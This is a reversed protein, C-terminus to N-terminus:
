KVGKKLICCYSVGMLEHYAEPCDRFTYMASGINSLCYAGFTVLGWWPLQLKNLICFADKTQKITISVVPIIKTQVTEPLPIIGLYLIVYTAIIIAGFTYAETARTMIYILYSIFSNFFWKLIISLTVKFFRAGFSCDVRIGLFIIIKQKRKTKIFIFKITFCYLHAM